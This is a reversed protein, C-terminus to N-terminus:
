LGDHSGERHHLYVAYDRARSPNISHPLKREIKQDFLQNRHSLTAPHTYTLFIEQFMLPIVEFYECYDLPKVTPEKLLHHLM